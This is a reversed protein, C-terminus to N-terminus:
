ASIERHAVDLNSQGVATFLGDGHSGTGDIDGFRDARTEGVGGDHGFHIAAEVIQGPGELLVGRQLNEGGLVRFREFDIAVGGGVQEGRGHQLQIGLRLQADARRDLVAEIVIEVAGGRERGLIEFLDFGPHPLNLLAMEGVLADVGFLFLTKLLVAVGPHLAFEDGLAGAVDEAFVRQTRMEDIEAAAWVDRVCGLDLCELQKRDGARIPLAVLVVLLQLADVAGREETRLVQLVVQVPEFLGLAAVM